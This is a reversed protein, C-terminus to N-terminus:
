RKLRKKINAAENANLLDILGSAEKIQSEICRRYMLSHNPDYSMQAQKIRCLGNYIEEILSEPIQIKVQDINSKM